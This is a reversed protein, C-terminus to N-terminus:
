WSVDSSDWTSSWPCPPPCAYLLRCTRSLALLSVISSPSSPKMSLFLGPQSEWCEAGTTNGWCDHTCRSLDPFAIDHECQIAILRHQAHVLHLWHGGVVREWILRRVELPVRSLLISQNQHCPAEPGGRVPTIARPRAQPLAPPANATRDYLLQRRGESRPVRRQSFRAMFPKGPSPSAFQTSM